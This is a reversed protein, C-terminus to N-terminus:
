NSTGKSKILLKTVVAVLKTLSRVVNYSSIHVLERSFFFRVRTFFNHSYVCFYTKSLYHFLNFFRIVKTMLVSVRVILLHVNRVYWIFLWYIFLWRLVFRSIMLEFFNKAFIIHLVILLVFFSKVFFLYVLWLIESLFLLFGFLTLRDNM